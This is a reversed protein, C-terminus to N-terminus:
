KGSYKKAFNHFNFCDHLFRVKGTLLALIILGQLLFKGDRTTESELQIFLCPLSAYYHSYVTVTCTSSNRNSYYVSINLPNLEKTSIFLILSCWAIVRFVKIHYFVNRVVKKLPM